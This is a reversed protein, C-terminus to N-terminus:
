SYETCRLVNSKMPVDIIKACVTPNRCSSSLRPHRREWTRKLNSGTASRGPRSPSSCFKLSSGLLELKAAARVAHKGPQDGKYIYKLLAEVADADVDDIM